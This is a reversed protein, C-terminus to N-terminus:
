IKLRFKKIHDVEKKNKKRSLYGRTYKQIVIAAELEWKRKIINWAKEFISGTTLLSKCFKLLKLKKKSLFCRINKSIILSASKLKSYNQFETRMHYLSSLKTVLNRKKRLIELYIKLNKQNISKKFWRQLIRLKKQKNKFKKYENRVKFLTQIRKISKFIIKLKQHQKMKYYARQIKKAMLHKAKM